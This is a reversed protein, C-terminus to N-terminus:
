LKLLSRDNILDNQQEKKTFNKKHKRKQTILLLEIIQKKRYLEYEDRYYNGQSNGCPHLQLLRSPQLM